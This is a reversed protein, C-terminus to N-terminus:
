VRGLQQRSSIKSAVDGLKDPEADLIFEYKMLSARSTASSTDCSKLFTTCRNRKSPRTITCIIMDITSYDGNYSLVIYHESLLLITRETSSEDTAFCRSRFGVFLERQLVSEDWGMVKIQRQRISSLPLDKRLEHEQEGVKEACLQEVFQQGELNNLTWLLLRCMNWHYKWKISAKSNATKYPDRQGNEKFANCKVTWNKFSSIRIDGWLNFIIM